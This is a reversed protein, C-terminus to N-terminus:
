RLFRIGSPHNSGHVRSHCNLCGQELLHHDTGLPPVGSGDYLTSPHFPASHCEQCLWPTRVKLMRPQTSGHPSHCLTCDERVPPHEWLFPGRKDQHCQYCTETVTLKVLQKPGFSGHTNHCDSCVVKGEAVPHHSFRLNQARQEKHCEYCVDAQETKVRVLDEPAHVSHCSNCTLDGTAHQSSRWNMRNGSEHCGLCVKNQDEAGTESAKGFSIATKFRRPKESHQASPGHCGECGNQAFPTRQDALLAHNTHLVPLTSREDHCELCAKAGGPTYEAAAADTQTQALCSGAATLLFVAVVAVARGALAPM